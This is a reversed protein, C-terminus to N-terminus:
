SKKANTVEEFIWAETSQFMYCRAKAYKKEVDKIAYRRAQLYQCQRGTRWFMKWSNGKSRQNDNTLCSKCKFEWYSFNSKGDFGPFQAQIINNRAAIIKKVKKNRSESEHHRQYWNNCCELLEFIRLSFKLSDFSCSSYLLSINSFSSWPLNCLWLM